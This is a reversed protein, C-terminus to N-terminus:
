WGPISVRLASVVGALFGWTPISFKLALAMELWSDGLILDLFKLASTVGALFIGYM